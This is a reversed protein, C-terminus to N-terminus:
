NNPTTFQRILLEKVEEIPFSGNILMIQKLMGDLCALFYRTIIEGDEHGKSKFYKTLPPLITNEWKTIDKDMMTTVEAQFFMCTFLKWKEHETVVLEINVDIFRLLDEDTMVEKKPLNYTAIIERIVEQIIEKLLEEKSEFYNYLLGKAMNAKQAIKSISAAHYGEEAFVELATQKILRKKNARMKEFQEPSRPSMKNFYKVSM